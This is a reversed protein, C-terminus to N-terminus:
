RQQKRFFFLGLASVGLLALSMGSDPVQNPPPVYATGVGDLYAYAGHGGQACDAVTLVVKVQDGATLNGLTFQGTSYFVPSYNPGSIAAQTWGPEESYHRQESFLVGNKYVNIIFWPDEEHPHGPNEMIGAWNIYLTASTGGQYDSTDITGTQSIQTVHFGNNIDNLKAMKNGIFMNQVTPFYPDTFGAKDVVVPAPAAAYMNQYGWGIDKLPDPDSNPVGNIGYSSQLFNYARYGNNFGQQVTWGNFTGDEFGGNTFGAYASTVLSATLAATALLKLTTKM